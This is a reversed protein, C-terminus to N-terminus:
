GLLRQEVVVTVEKECGGTEASKIIVAGEFLGDLDYEERFVGKFRRRDRWSTIGAAKRLEREAAENANDEHQYVGATRTIKEKMTGTATKFSATETRNVLYVNRKITRLGSSPNRRVVKIIFDVEGTRLPVFFTLDPSLTRLVVLFHLMGPM